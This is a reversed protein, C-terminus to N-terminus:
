KRAFRARVQEPTLTRGLRSDALGKDIAQRAYVAEILDDWKMDDPLTNILAHAQAKPSEQNENM